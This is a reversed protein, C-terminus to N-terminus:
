CEDNNCRNIIIGNEILQVEVSVGPKMNLHQAYLAPISCYICNAGKGLGLLKRKAM